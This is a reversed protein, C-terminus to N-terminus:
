KTIDGNVMIHVITQSLKCDKVKDNEMFGNVKTNADQHFLLKQFNKNTTM